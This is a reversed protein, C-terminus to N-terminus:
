RWFPIQHEQPPSDEDDDDNSADARHAAASRRIRIVHRGPALDRVDIYWSLGPLGSRPHEAFVPSEAAARGDIAVQWMQSACSLAEAITNAAIDPDVGRTPRVFRIGPSSVAELAPCIYQVAQPDRTPGFPIFVRLVTAEADLMEVPISPMVVSQPRDGWYAEYYRPDVGAAGPVVPVFSLSVWEMRGRQVLVDRVVFISTLLIMVAGLAFGARRGGIQSALTFQTPGYSALGLRRLNFRHTARIIAAMRGEPDLRGAFIRDIVPPIAVAASVGVAAVVLVTTPSPIWPVFSRLALVPVGLFTVIGVSLLFVAVVYFAGSFVVSAVGDTRVILERVSPLNRKLYAKGIPGLRVRDWRVGRPFVSDLGVLSVWFARLVIHVLFALILTYLILKVYQYSLVAALGAAEGLLPFTRNFLDDVRGPLQGLGFALAGSVLFELEWTRQQLDRLIRRARPSLRRSTRQPPDAETM